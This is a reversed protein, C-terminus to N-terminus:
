ERKKCPTPNITWSLLRRPMTKLSKKQGVGTDIVVNQAYLPSGRRKQEESWEIMDYSSLDLDVRIVPQTIYFQQRAYHGCTNIMSTLPLM